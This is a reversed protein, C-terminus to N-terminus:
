ISLYGTTEIYTGLGNLIMNSMDRHLSAGYIPIIYIELAMDYRLHVGVVKEL